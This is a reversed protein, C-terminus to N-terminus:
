VIVVWMKHEFEGGFEGLYDHSIYIEIRTM